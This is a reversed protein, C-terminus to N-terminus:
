GCRGGSAHSRHEIEMSFPLGHRVELCRIEGADVGRVYEFLQVVQRKLEFEGPPTRSTVPDESGFKIGQVTTPWPNLVLEGSQIRLVEFRGFGLQQMAAAFRSESPLLNRTSTPGQGSM